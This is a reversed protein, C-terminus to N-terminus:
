GAVSTNFTLFVTLLCLAIVSPRIGNHYAHGVADACLLSVNMIARIRIMVLAAAVFDGCYLVDQKNDIPSRTFIDSVLNFDMFTKPAHMLAKHAVIPLYPNCDPVPSVIDRAETM